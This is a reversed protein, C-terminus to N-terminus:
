RAAEARAALWVQHAHRVRACRREHVYGYVFSGLYSAFIGIRLGIEGPDSVRVDEDLRTLSDAVFGAFAVAGFADAGLSAQSGNCRPALGPTYRRPARESFALSCASVAVLLVLCGVVRVLGRM